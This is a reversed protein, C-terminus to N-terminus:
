QGAAGTRDEGRRPSANAALAMLVTKMQFPTLGPHKSLVRAIIGAIHPTAFSNGTAQITAGGLWAVELDIGPAGWEAPPSPNYDFSFPDTGDHSAVSFVSSFESPFSAGPLNNLAAVLMTRRFAAQDALRHFSAFYDRKGTALSLNVVHMDHEIAWRLGAAFVFGKGTLRTGLVRVSHLEAAPAIKRIIAACATGHGYLDEHPGEDFRVGSPADADYEVAVAGEIPGVWPHDVDIGSDLIAVRVGAGDADGWAWEPSIDLPLHVPVDRLAGEQFAWSWAPRM